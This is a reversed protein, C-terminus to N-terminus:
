LTLFNTQGSSLPQGSVRQALLRAHYRASAELTNTQLCEPHSHRPGQRPTPPLKAPTRGLSPHRRVPELPPHEQNPEHACHSTSSRTRGAVALASQPTHETNGHLSRATSANICVSKVTHGTRSWKYYLRSVPDFSIVWDVMGCYVEHYPQAHRVMYNLTQVRSRAAYAARQERDETTMPMVTPSQLAGLTTSDDPPDDAPDDDSSSTEDDTTTVAGSPTSDDLRPASTQAIHFAAIGMRVAERSWEVCDLLTTASSSRPPVSTPSLLVYFVPPVSIAVLQAPAALNPQPPAFAIVTGARGLPCLLTSGVLSSQGWPIKNPLQLPQALRLATLTGMALARIENHLLQTDPGTERFLNKRIEIITPAACLFCVQTTSANTTYDLIRQRMSAAYTSDGRSAPNGDARITAITQLLALAAPPEFTRALHCYQRRVAYLSTRLGQCMECPHTPTDVQTPSIHALSGVQEALASITNYRLQEVEMIAKLRVASFIAADECPSQSYCVDQFYEQLCTPSKGDPFTIHRLRTLPTYETFNICPPALPVTPSPQQPLPLLDWSINRWYEWPDVPDGLIHPQHRLALSDWRGEIYATPTQWDREGHAPIRASIRAFTVALCRAQDRTIYNQNASREIM